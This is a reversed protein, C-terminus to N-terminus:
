RLELSTVVDQRLVGLMLDIFVLGAAIPMDVELATRAIFYQYFLVAALAVMFVIGAIPQPLGNAADLAAVPLMVAMQILNSWNYAVIYPIFRQQKVLAALLYWAVVPFATWAITYGIVEVLLVRVPDLDVQRQGLQLVVLLAYLPAMLAAAWFSRWFGEFSSDFYQMGRPDLHALRWAGFVGYSVERATIM